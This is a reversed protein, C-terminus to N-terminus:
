HGSLTTYPSNGLDQLPFRYHKENNMRKSSIKSDRYMRYISKQFRELLFVKELQFFFFKKLDSGTRCLFTEWATHYM